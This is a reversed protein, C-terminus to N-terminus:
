RVPIHSKLGVEDENFEAYHMDQRCDARTRRKIQMEADTLHLLSQVLAEQRKRGNQHSIVKERILLLVM